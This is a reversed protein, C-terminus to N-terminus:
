SYPPPIKGRQKLKFMILCTSVLQPLKLCTSAFIPTRHQLLGLCTSAVRPLQQPLGRSGQPLKLCSSAVTAAVGAYVQIYIYIYIYIYIPKCCYKKINLTQNNITNKSGKTRDIYRGM